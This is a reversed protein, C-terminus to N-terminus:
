IATNDNVAFIATPKPDLGMLAMAAEAGSDIGFSSDVIFAPDPTMGAEALARRYGEVRGRASSAYSPGAILGIRRHGLDLLHRTAL